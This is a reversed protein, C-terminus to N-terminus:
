CCTWCRLQATGELGVWWRLRQMPHAKLVVAELPALQLEGVMETYKRGSVLELITISRSWLPLITLVNHPPLCRHGCIGIFDDGYSSTHLGDSADSIARGHLEGGCLSGHRMRSPRIVCSKDMAVQAAPKEHYGRARSVTGRARGFTANM